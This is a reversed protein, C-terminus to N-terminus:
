LVWVGRMAHSIRGVGFCDCCLGEVVFPDEPEIVGAQCGFPGAPSLVEVFAAGEVGRLGEPADEVVDFGGGVEGLIGVIM